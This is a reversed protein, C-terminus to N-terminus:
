CLWSASQWATIWTHHRRGTGCRPVLCAPSSRHIPGCSCTAAGFFLPRGTDANRTSIPLVRYYDSMEWQTTHPEQPELPVASPMPSRYSSGRRGLYKLIIILLQGMLTIRVHLKPDGRITVKDVAIFRQLLEVFVALPQPPLELFKFFGCKGDRPQQHWV